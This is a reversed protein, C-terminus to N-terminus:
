FSQILKDNTTKKKTWQIQTANRILNNTKNKSTKKM